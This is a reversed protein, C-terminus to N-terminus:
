ILDEEQASPSEQELIKARTAPATTQATTQVAKEPESVVASTAVNSLPGFGDELRSIASTLLPLKSSDKPLRKWMRHIPCKEYMEDPWDRWAGVESNKSFKRVQELETIDMVERIKTGDELTAIAYAGVTKGRDTGFAAPVHVIIQNDGLTYEFKDNEKVVHASIVIKYKAANKILGYVMPMWQVGKKWNNGDKKNFIVLAGERGDPLLGDQAAKVCSNYLSQKDDVGMLDQNQQLATLVVRTFQDVSVDPPLAQQFHPKMAQINHLVVDKPSIKTVQTNM